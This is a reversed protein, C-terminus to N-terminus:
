AADGRLLPLDVEIRTGHKRSRPVARWSEINLIGGLLEVRERMASLGFSGHAAVALTDFGVGDDEITMNLASDKTSKLCVTIHKAAAHQLVNSLAGQMSRYLAVQHSMPLDGPVNENRLTVPIGTGASFQRLYSKVAPLFGLADFVAPGLDKGLRRVAEISHAVLKIASALRQTIVPNDQTELAMMELNLKAVILDHGVEDHLDQALRRREEEYIRTIYTSVRRAREETEALIAEVLTEKGAAWQGTYGSVVLLGVLAYLRALALVPAARSSKEMALFPLCSEFLRNAVAVARDLRPYRQALTRGFAHLCRRFEPYRVSRVRRALDAFDIGGPLLQDADLGLESLHQHWIKLINDSHPALIELAEAAPGQITSHFRTQSIGPM